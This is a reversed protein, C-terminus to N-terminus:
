RYGITSSNGEELDSAPTTEPVSTNQTKVGPHLTDSIKADCTKLVNIGDSIPKTDASSASQSRMSLLRELQSITVKLKSLMGEVTSYDVTNPKSIYGFLGRTM